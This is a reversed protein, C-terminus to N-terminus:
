FVDEILTNVSNFVFHDGAKKHLLMKALPANPSLFLITKKDLEQKGLGAAIFFSIDKCQVFSGATIASHITNTDVSQLTSLEKLNEALQRSYMDQELQGMARATEYKDGVTSKEEQNTIERANAIAEKAVGVRHEILEQCLHKLKNKFIIKEHHDM